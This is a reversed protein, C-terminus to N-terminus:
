SLQEKRKFHWYVHATICSILYSLVIGIGAVQYDLGLIMTNPYSIHASYLYLAVSATTSSPCPARICRIGTDFQIFPMFLVFLALALIAKSIPQPSLCEKFDM